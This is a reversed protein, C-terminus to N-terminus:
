AGLPLQSAPDLIAPDAGAVYAIAELELRSIYRFSQPPQFGVWNLRLEALPLPPRFRSPSKVTIAVATETGAFYEDFQQRDIGALHGHLNWIEDPHAGVLAHVRCLGVVARVPSAAYIVVISGEAARPRIRRLEVTKGGDLIMEAYAPRLSLFLARDSAAM